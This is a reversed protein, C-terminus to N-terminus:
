TGVAHTAGEGTRAPERFIRSWLPLCIGFYVVSGIGVRLLLYPVNTRISLVGFALANAAYGVAEVLLFLIAQRMWAASRDRFALLKNGIFQITVGLALAIPTALRPAQHLVEVAFTLALLDSGTAVLGVLASRHIRSPVRTSM